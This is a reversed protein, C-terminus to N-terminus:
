FPDAQKLDNLAPQALCIQIPQEKRHLLWRRSPAPRSRGFHGTKIPWIQRVPDAMTAPSLRGFKGSERYLFVCKIISM